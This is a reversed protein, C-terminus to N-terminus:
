RTGEPPPWAFLDQHDVRIDLAQEAAQATRRDFWRVAREREAPVQELVARQWGKLLAVQLPAQGPTLRWPSSAVSVRYGHAELQAKLYDTADPGMAPDTGKIGHQHANVTQQIWHDDEDAPSLAFRGDYTLTIFVGAYQRAAVAALAELWSASMLDILASATILRTERPIQSALRDATLHCVHVEVPVDLHEIREAALALLEQDQDFLAWRQPVPLAPVLYRANSGTGTGLDAM